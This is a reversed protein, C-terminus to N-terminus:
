LHYTILSNKTLNNLSPVYIIGDVQPIEQKSNTYSIEGTSLSKTIVHLAISKVELISDYSTIFSVLQATNLGTDITIQSQASTIWPALFINIGNNIEKAVTTVDQDNNIMIDAIITVYNLNFNKVAVNVFPSVREQIYSQIELENCEDLLPMFANTETVDSVRKLVYTTAKKARYITKSYYAEPFQLRIVNFYDEATSLRDKTKLRASARSNMQQNTEAVKGGFSAFPQVTASIEPIATKPSTIINAKIQPTVTSLDNSPLIRQLTIGNTKLFSTQPFNDPNTAAGIAIWFNTGSITEHDTTIDSPINITIIGSCTFSNTGDAISTLTKWGDTSLYSYTVKNTPVTRETYTRALEFYFSVKAPAIVDELELFLQGKSSFTPVLPLATLPIITGSKDREPSSGFTTYKTTIKEETNATDFVKYNEFPTNYFCELPYTEDNKSFDYSAAANYDGSFLSVTPIFPLNPPQIMVLTSTPKKIKVAIVGANYLAIAGVVNPYEATGFGVSPATLQMKLFGTTSKDTLVLPTQQLTPDIYKQPTTFSSFDYTREPALVDNVTFLEQDTAANEISKWLGNELFDFSVKFAGNTFQLATGNDESTTVDATNKKSKGGLLRGFFSTKESSTKSTIELATESTTKAESSTIDTVTTPCIVPTQDTTSTVSENYLGKLYNNYQCYYTAFDFTDTFTNWTLHIKVDNFPKSFIEASGIMFSQDVKPSPGLPQFPKKANLQGFDNYLAFNQMGKVAINIELKKIKPPNALDEFESFQMKFLPWDCTYGDPNKTFAAIVPDTPYLTITMSLTRDITMPLKFSQTTFKRVVQSGPIEFWAKETSLYFKTKEQLIDTFTSSSLTFDLTIVRSTAATLYFLPSGFAIAMKNPKIDSNPQSGFTKWTKVTGAEDKAIVNVPPLKQLYFESHYTHVTKQFLTYANAIKAPNLWVNTTTEFLIAQKEADLGAMFVTNKLLQFNATKKALNSCAFVTDPSVTKPLQKLIDGYYFKLHKESLSNMQSQYTKLLSTFTRLLITDPFSGPVNQVTELETEAHSICNSYFAFVKKGTSYLATFLQKQTLESIYFCQEDAADNCPSTPLGLVTWYPLEGKNTKWIKKDYKEFAYKNINKIKPINVTIDPTKGYNFLQQRLDLLSWLILSYTNKVNTVIYTKLNYEISSEQSYHTWREITQFVYTLQDFLQNFANTIFTNNIEKNLAVELQLCTNIFLSYAKKFSTKAISAVLFVPDKLLFPSWNGNIKNTQDYFNFLSAFDVLLRLNDAETRSDILGATPVLAQELSLIANHQDFQNM